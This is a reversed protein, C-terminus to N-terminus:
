GVVDVTLYDLRASDADTATAQRDIAVGIVVAATTDVTTSALILVKATGSTPTVAGGTGCGVITGTAGATRVTFEFDFYFVDGNAPDVTTFIALTVSGLKLLIDHTEAATTVTHIGQARIRVRTGVKLSAAPLTYSQDFVAETETTGTIAASAAVERYAGGGIVRATGSAVADTTTLRGVFGIGANSDAVAAKSAVAQGALAGDLFAMEVDSVSGVSELGPAMDAEADNFFKAGNLHFDGNQDTYVRNAAHGAESAM